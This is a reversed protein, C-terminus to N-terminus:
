ENETDFDKLAEELKIKQMEEMTLEPNAEESSESPSENDDHPVSFLAAEEEDSLAAATELPSAEAPEEAQNQNPEEGEVSAAMEELPSAAPAEVPKILSAEYRALWRKEKSDVEENANLADRIDEARQKDREQRQRIKEQEFFDTSTEIQAIQETIKSWEEERSHDQVVQMSMESITDWDREPKAEEETMGDPLLEDIESLSPLERLDRLGFIELFKRTTGYVMPKGPLESKGVFKVLSRDMLARVLHGSEVGRISDVEAKIIPQKYAIISLVELAPGSLRFPRGKTLRRVFVMNEAKTRLQYGGGIEMLSMGREAGAYEILLDNLCRKIIDTPTNTGKFVEKLVSMTMPKEAALLLSEIVSKVQVMELNEPVSEEDPEIAEVEEGATGFNESALGEAMLEPSVADEDVTVEIAPEMVEQKAEAAAIAEDQLDSLAEVLNKSNKKKSSKKENQKSRSPSRQKETQKEGRSM